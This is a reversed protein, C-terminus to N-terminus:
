TLEFEDGISPIIVERFGQQLLLGRFNQQAEYVGHVLFLQKASERQNEMFRVMEWRDAHASFSDMIEVTARVPKWQGFFRLAQVGNRLMGGPTEPAAYGVILITNKPDEMNNFLHHQIRGANAMGSASIIICPEQSTNLKKSEETDRIYHLDNFGFPNDDILLYENLQDDFCEPHAGYITSANVALPSDVYVPVPPLEGATVLRDLLYVIEQTRGVSFAPIILKGKKEICTQQILRLFHGIEAPAEEHDRDGYTSECLLYDVEPMPQPDRLIPRNPRGVDGTFGLMITKGNERIKLTISASGLIHGADRFLVEVQDHIKFWRDYGYSVFQKMVAEADQITYLPEPLDENDLTGDKLLQKEFYRADREQIKASDLLMISCLSRTAHTARVPGIFGDRTLRPLRGTHDIHAHSLIVCDLEAPDFLWNTNFNSMAKSRGQYMGCDLLIKTGDNLTLLHSSGTVERAAGCFKIKM